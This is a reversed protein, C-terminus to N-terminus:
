RKTLTWLIKGWGFVWVAARVCLKMFKKLNEDTRLTVPRGARGDDEVVERGKLFRKHWKYVQTRSMCNDGFVEKLLQFCECEIWNFPLCAATSESWILIAIGVLFRLCTPQTSRVTLTACNTLATARIAFPQSNSDQRQCDKEYCKECARELVGSRSM